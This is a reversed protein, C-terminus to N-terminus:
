KKSGLNLELCAFMHLGCTLVFLFGQFVCFHVHTLFTKPLSPEQYERSSKMTFVMYQNYQNYQTPYSERCYRCNVVRLDANKKYTLNTHPNGIKLTSAGVTDVNKINQKDTKARELRWLM